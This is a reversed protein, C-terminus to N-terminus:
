DLSKAGACRSLDAGSMLYQLLPNGFTLPTQANGPLVLLKAHAIGYLLAPVAFVFGVLPGSAGVDFLSRNTRIPSRM